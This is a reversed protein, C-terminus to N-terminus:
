TEAHDSAFRAHYEKTVVALLIWTPFTLRTVELWSQLIGMQLLVFFGVTSALAMAPLPDGRVAVRRLALTLRGARVMAALYIFVMACFGFFGIEALLSTYDSFPVKLAYSGQFVQPNSAQPLVYEDSVDTGYVEGGTLALAYRGAVNSPNTSDAQAFTQWARSSYTGPGTGTFMYRPHDTFLHALHDLGRVRETVIQGPDATFAKVAPGLGLYPLSRATFSLTVVFTALVAFGILVGRARFRGLLLGILVLAAATTLILARYQALFITALIAIFLFPVYKAVRRDPEFTFIGALLAGTLILFYVLQYANTGFTGSILDPDQTPIFRPVDVAVVVVLQILALVVFLRSLSLASGAPWIRYTALYIGIPALYGYIFVLAPPLAVRTPNVLTALACAVLVLLAPFVFIFAHRTDMRSRVAPLLLAGLVLAIFIPIDLFNAARPVIKYVETFFRVCVLIAVASLVLVVGARDTRTVPEAGNSEAAPAEGTGFWARPKGTARALEDLRAVADQQGDEIREVDWLSVGLREALEKQSLGAERRATAVREGTM